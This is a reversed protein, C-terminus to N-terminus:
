KGGGTIKSIERDISERDGPLTGKEIRDGYRSLDQQRKDEVQHRNYKTINAKVLGANYIAGTGTGLQIEDRNTITNGFESEKTNTDSKVKEFGRKFVNEM